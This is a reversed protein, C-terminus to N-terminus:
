SRAQDPQRGVIHRQQSNGSRAPFVMQAEVASTATAARAKLLPRRASPEVAIWPIIAVEVIAMKAFQALPIYHGSFVLGPLGCFLEFNRFHPGDFLKLFFHTVLRVV